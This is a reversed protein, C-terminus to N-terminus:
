LFDGYNGAEQRPPKLRRFDIWMDFVGAVCVVAAVVPQVITIFYIVGRVIVPVSLSQFYFGMIALGQCFYVAAFLLFGNLAIDSIARIPALMGFGTAILGWILWEPASWKSLDAFLPYTLRTKGSWRWFLRLNVLMAFGALTAALAPSIRMIVSLLETQTDAPLANPMGMARYMEQGHAMGIALQAQVANAIGAPTGFMALAALAAVVLMAGAGAIVIMEFPRRRELMWVMVVTALGFSLLYGGAGQLGGAIAILVAALAVAITVRLEARVRGVAYLLIPLPSLLVAFAGFFPILGGAIFLAAALASARTMGIIEKRTM